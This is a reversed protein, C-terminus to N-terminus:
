EDPEVHILVNSIDPIEKRILNKLDHAIAHGQRVSLDGKVVLHLDIHFSIGAKRVLCKETDVVGEVQKALTRIEGVLDDYLHEDMIESLAPRFILYANYIIFGSALLAAWDDASEFGEGMAVAISIGVFVLLSTIADSRHHWADAKLSTSGTQEGRRAVYRYFFEKIIVIAVLVVLTYNEPGPHPTRINRISDYAIVTASIVLFGVVAFTILPEAKGHGYPHNADPPRAAYKLGILVLISSFVDTTSEIADAILAYSNGFFGTVGKALALLFNGGISLYITNIAKQQNSKM